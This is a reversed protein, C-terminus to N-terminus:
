STEGRELAEDLSSDQWSAQQPSKAQSTLGSGAPQYNRLIHQRIWRLSGSQLSTLVSQTDFATVSLMATGRRWGPNMKKFLAIHPNDAAMAPTIDSAAQNPRVVHDGSFSLLMKKSDFADPFLQKGLTQAIRRQDADMGAPDPYLQSAHDAMLLYSRYHRALQCWYLPTALHRLKVRLLLGQMAAGLDCQPWYQPLVVVDDSLMGIVSQGDVDLRTITQTSFGVIRGDAKRTMMIVGSKRGLERIFVDLSPHDHCAAFVEYLQRISSVPVSRIPRYFTNLSEQKASTSM